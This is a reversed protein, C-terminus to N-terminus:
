RGPFYDSPSSDHNGLAPLILTEPFYHRLLQVIARETSFIYEWSAEAPYNFHSISDGTWLIFEPEPHLDHMAKVASKVLPWPSDCGFDGMPGLQSRNEPEPAFHCWNQLNGGDATYYTDLHIDSLQWFHKLHSQVTNQVMVGGDSISLISLTMTVLVCPNIHM